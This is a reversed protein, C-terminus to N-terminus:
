AAVELRLAERDIANLPVGCDSCVSHGWEDLVPSNLVHCGQEECQIADHPIPPEPKTTKWADYPSM